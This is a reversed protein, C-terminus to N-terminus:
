RLTYDVTVLNHTDRNNSDINDLVWAVLVVMLIVLMLTVMITVMVVLLLM